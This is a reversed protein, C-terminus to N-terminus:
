GRPRSLSQMSYGATKAQLKRGSLLMWFEGDGVEVAADASEVTLCPNEGVCAVLESSADHERLLSVARQSYTERVRELLTDLDADRLVVWIVPM